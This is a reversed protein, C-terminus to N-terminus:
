LTVFHAYFTGLVFCFGLREWIVWGRQFLSYNRGRVLCINTPNWDNRAINHRSIKFSISIIKIIDIFVAFEKIFMIKKLILYVHIYLHSHFSDLLEIFRCISCIYRPMDQIQCFDSCKKEFTNPIISFYHNILNFRDYVNGRKKTYTM